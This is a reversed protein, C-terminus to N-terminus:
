AKEHYQSSILLYVQLAAYQQNLVNLEKQLQDLYDPFRDEGYPKFFTPQTIDLARTYTHLLRVQNEIKWLCTTIATYLLDTYM